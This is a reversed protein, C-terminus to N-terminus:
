SSKVSVSLEEEEIKDPRSWWLSVKRLMLVTEDQILNFCMAVIAMGILIFASSVLVSLETSGPTLEGFGITGLSTFCFYSGEILTWNELRNFLVAGGAIYGLVVLLTLIVPVRVRQPIPTMVNPEIAKDQMVHNPVPGKSVAGSAIDVGKGKSSRAKTTWIKSYTRRFQGALSDGVMSLYVLMLPIGILAYAITILRGWATRPTVNGYGITTILTLSYLFASPFTWNYSRSSHGVHKYKKVLMNQFKLVEEGALRTWNEKYLINLDETISWLKEVTQKRLRDNEEIEINNELSNRGELTMFTVAGLLAYGVVLLCIGLSSLLSSVSRCCSNSCYKSAPHQPNPSSQCYSPRSGLPFQYSRVDGALM